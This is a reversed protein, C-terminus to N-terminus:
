ECNGDTDIKARRPMFEVQFAGESDGSYLHGINELRSVCKSNKSEEIIQTDEGGEFWNEGPM